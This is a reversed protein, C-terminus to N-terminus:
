YIYSEQKFIIVNDFDSFDLNCHLCVVPDAIMKAEFIVEITSFEMLTDTNFM